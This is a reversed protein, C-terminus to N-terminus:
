RSERVVNDDDRQRLSEGTVDDKGAVRPPNYGLNYVRGSAEHIWRESNKSNYVLKM